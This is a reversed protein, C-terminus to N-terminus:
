AKPSFPTTRKEYDPSTSNTVFLLRKAPVTQRRHSRLESKLEEYGGSGLPPGARRIRGGCNSYCHLTDPVDVTQRRQSRLESKLEEYGGSGLPPGAGRIRGGCSGCGHLTGPVGV